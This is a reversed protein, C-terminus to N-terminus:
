NGSVTHVIHISFSGVPGESSRFHYAELYLSRGPVEYRAHRGAIYDKAGDDWKAPGKSKAKKGEGAIKNLWDFYKTVDDPGLDKSTVYCWYDSKKQDGSMKVQARGVIDKTLGNRSARRMVKDAEAAAAVADSASSKGDLALASSTLCADAFLKAGHEAIDRAAAPVATMGLVAFPAALKM